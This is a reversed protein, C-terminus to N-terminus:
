CEHNIDVFCHNYLMSRHIRNSAKIQLTEERQGIFYWLLIKGGVFHLMSHVGPPCLTRQLVLVNDMQEEDMPSPKCGQRHRAGCSCRSYQQTLRLPRPELCSFASHLLLKKNTSVVFSGSWHVWLRNWTTWLDLWRWDSSSYGFVSLRLGCSAWWFSPAYIM